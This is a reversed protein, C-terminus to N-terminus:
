GGGPTARPIFLLAFWRRYCWCLYLELVLLLLAPAGGPPDLCAHFLVINVIVPAIVVLALPMFLGLILLTGAVVETGGVLPIMYGTAFLARFFADAREPFPPLPVFHLFKNLGFVVFILGMVVRAVVPAYRVIPNQVGSGAGNPTSM